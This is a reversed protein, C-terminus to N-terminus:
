ILTQTEDEVVRQYRESVMWTKIKNIITKEVQVRGELEIQKEPSMRSLDLPVFQSRTIVLTTPEIDAPIQDVISKADERMQHALILQLEHKQGEIALRAVFRKERNEAAQRMAEDTPDRLEDVHAIFQEAFENM